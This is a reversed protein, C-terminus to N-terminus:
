KNKRSLQGNEFKKIMRSITSYHVKSYEAIEKEFIRKRLFSYGYRVYANYEESGHWLRPFWILPVILTRGDVLNDSLEEETLSVSQARHEKKGAGLSNMGNEHTTIRMHSGSQRTIQYGYRALAKALDHGGIDRPARM